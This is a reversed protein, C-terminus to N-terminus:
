VSRGNLLASLYYQRIIETKENHVIMKMQIRLRNQLINIFSCFEVFM